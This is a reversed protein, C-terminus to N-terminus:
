KKARWGRASKFKFVLEQIKEKDGAAEPNNALIYRKLLSEESEISRNNPGVTAMTITDLL